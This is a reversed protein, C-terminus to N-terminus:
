STVEYFVRKVSAQCFVESSLKQLSPWDFVPPKVAGKDRYVYHLFQSQSLPAQRYYGLSSMASALSLGGVEQSSAVISCCSGKVARMEPKGDALHHM